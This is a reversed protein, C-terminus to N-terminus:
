LTKLFDDLAIGKSDTKNTKNNNPAAPNAKPQGTRAAEAEARATEADALAKDVAAQVIRDTYVAQYLLKLATTGKATKDLAAISLPNIGVKMADSIFSNLDEPSLQQEMQFNNLQRDMQVRAKAIEVEKKEKEYKEIEAQLEPSLGRTEARAKVDAEDMAKIMADYDVKGNEGKFDKIRFDYDGDSMRNIATDIKEQLRTAANAKDRLEKMPNPKNAEAKAAAEAAVKEAELEEPTKEPTTEGPPTEEAPPTEGPPTEAPPTEAPPTEAPPTEGTGLFEEISGIKEEM